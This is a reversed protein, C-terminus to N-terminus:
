NRVMTIRFSPINALRRLGDRCCATPPQHWLPDTLVSRFRFLEIRAASDAPFANFLCGIRLIKATQQAKSGAPLFVAPPMCIFVLVARIM